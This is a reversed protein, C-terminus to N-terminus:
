SASRRYTPKLSLEPTSLPLFRSKTAVPRRSFPDPRRRSPRTPAFCYNPFNPPDPKTGIGLTVPNSDCQM